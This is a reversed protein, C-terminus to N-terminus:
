AVSTAKAFAALGRMVLAARLLVVRYIQIGQM